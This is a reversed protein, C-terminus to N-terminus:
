EIIKVEPLPLIFKGGSDLYSQNRSKIEEWFSWALLLCYDPRDAQMLIESTHVTLHVGPTIVGKKAPADDVIYDLFRSDLGCYNSVITGRGSAGYGAISKGEAKLEELLSILDTKTKSM